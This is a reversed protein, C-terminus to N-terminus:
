TRSPAKPPIVVGTDLIKCIIHTGLPRLIRGSGLKRRLYVKNYSNMSVWPFIQLGGGRLQRGAPPQHKPAALRLASQPYGLGNSFLNLARRRVSHAIETM